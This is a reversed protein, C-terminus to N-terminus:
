DRVRSALFAAALLALSIGAGVRFATGAYEFVEALGPILADPLWSLFAPLGGAARRVAEEVPSRGIRAAALFLGSAALLAGGAGALGAEPGGALLLLAGLVAPIVFILFLSYLLNLGRLRALFGWADAGMLQALDVADPVGSFGRRIEAEIAAEPDVGDPIGGLIRRTGFGADTARNLRAAASRALRRPFDERFWALSVALDPKASRGNFWSLLEGGTRTSERLLWAPTFSAATAEEVAGTLEVPVQLKLAGTIRPIATDLLDRFVDPRSVANYAETLRRSLFPSTFATCRVTVYAETLFLVPVLFLALAAVAAIRPAALPSRNM